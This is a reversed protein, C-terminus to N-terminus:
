KLETWTEPGEKQIISWAYKTQVKDPLYPITHYPLHTLSTIDEKEEIM